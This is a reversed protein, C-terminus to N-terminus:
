TTVESFPIAWREEEITVMAAVLWGTPALIECPEARVIAIPLILSSFPEEAPTTRVWLNRITGSRQPVMRFLAKAPIPRNFWDVGEVFPDRVPDGLLQLIREHTKVIAECSEPCASAGGICAGLATPAPQM